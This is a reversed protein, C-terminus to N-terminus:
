HDPPFGMVNVIRCPAAAASMAPTATLGLAAWGFPVSQILSCAPPRYASRVADRSCDGRAPPCSPRDRRRRTTSRVNPARRVPGRPVLDLKAAAKVGGDGNAIQDRQRRHRSDVGPHHTPNFSRQPMAPRKSTPMPEFLGSSCATTSRRRGVVDLDCCTEPSRAGPLRRQVDAEAAARHPNAFGHPGPVAERCLLVAPPRVSRAAGVRIAAVAVSAHRIGVSRAVLPSGARTRRLSYGRISRSLRSLLRRRRGALGQTVDQISAAM